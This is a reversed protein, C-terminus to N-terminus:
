KLWQVLARSNCMLFSAHMHKVGDELMLTNKSNKIKTYMVCAELIYECPGELVTQDNVSTRALVAKADM